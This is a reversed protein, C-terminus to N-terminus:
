QEAANAWYITRAKEPLRIAALEKPMCKKLDNIQDEPVGRLQEVVFLPRQKSETYIRSVYEGVVGIAILQVGALLAILIVLWTSATITIGHMGAYVIGLAAFLLAAWSILMGLCGWIRLPIASFSVIGDLALSCLKLLSFKTKGSVRPPRSFSVAQHRFGPWDLLGKMYRTSEPMTNIVDVVRKDLLRFDGVDPSISAGSLRQFLAHFISAGIRKPLSDRSRDARKAYVIDVGSRWVKLMRPLLQPPDQLDADMIVVADGTALRLGCTVAAEKGFNRSFRVLRVSFDEHMMTQLIPWTDDASGDDVFVLELKAQCQQRQAALAAILTEICCAENYVPIVVSVRTM